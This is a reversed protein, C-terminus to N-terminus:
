EKQFALHLIFEQFLYHKNLSLSTSASKFGMGLRFSADENPDVSESDSWDALWLIGGAHLAHEISVLLLFITFLMPGVKKILDKFIYLPVHGTLSTEDKIM